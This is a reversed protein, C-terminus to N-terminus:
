IQFQFPTGDDAFKEESTSILKWESGYPPFFTDGEFEKKIFTVYLRDAVNFAENFIQNGGIVMVEEAYEKAIDLAESFSHVVTVGEVKYDENRTVVINLRGPLPRGISEYTKRGMIMAKNMTHKKFYALDERLHWPMKNDKGIVRNPDHAVILSIM